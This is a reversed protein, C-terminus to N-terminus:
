PTQFQFHWGDADQQLTSTMGIVQYFTRGPRLFIPDGDLTTLFLPQDM